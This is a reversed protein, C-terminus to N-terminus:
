VLNEEELINVIAKHEYIEVKPSIGLKIPNEEWLKTQNL